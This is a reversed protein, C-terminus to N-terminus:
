KIVIETVVKEQMYENIHQMLQQKGFNLEQKLAAVDTYISLTSNFLRVDRTHKAITKGAIQEWEKRIRLENAKPKWGSRQMLLQIAEGVSYQGM